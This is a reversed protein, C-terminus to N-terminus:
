HKRGRVTLSIILTGEVTAHKTSNEKEHEKIVTIKLFEDEQREKQGGKPNLFSFLPTPVLFIKSCIM